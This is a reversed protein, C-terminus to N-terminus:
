QKIRGTIEAATWAGLWMGYYFSEANPETHHEKCWKVFADHIVKPEAERSRQAFLHETQCLPCTAVFDHGCESITQRKVWDAQFTSLGVDDPEEIGMMKLVAKAADRMREKIEEAPLCHWPVGDPNMAEWTRRAFMEYLTKEM